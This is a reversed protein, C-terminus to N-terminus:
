RSQAPWAIEYFRSSQTSRVTDRRNGLHDISRHLLRKRRGVRSRNVTSIRAQRVTRSQKWCRPSERHRRDGGHARRPSTVGMRCHCAGIEQETQAGPLDAKNIVFVDAIEMIGAKIAQVDDGTGPALVVLTVGALRAIEVEDQGVGVTEVLVM